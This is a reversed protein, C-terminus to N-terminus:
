PKLNEQLYQRGKKDMKVPYKKKLQEVWNKELYTQYDSIVEPRAEEFSMTGPPLIDKFWALYYMGNNEAPHVGAAWNVKNFVAKDERKYFGSEYKVKNTIVAELIKREDGQLLLPQLISIFAKNDSSYLSAKVREGAQYEAAHESYYKHQGISDESAKNWVEKEMIEFLLIGEYYEKLLFSYEPNERKIKEEQLTIISVDVFNNYLQDIYKQPLMTNTHQNKVVYDIFQSVRVPKGNLSFLIDKAATPWAPAKWSGKSLTSDAFSFVKTKMPNVESFGFEERLRAQWAMKTLQTREDRNVRSKLTPALAAYDALPIIRELKIIHWGYQTEFPDSVEGPKTLAFAIKEFEPVSAMQGVSFPKLRGGNDKSGPDESFQKCLDDWNVNAQLQDYIDFILNKAKVNDKDEGTRIMIHSVEVEGRSPRRDEVFLLHYGFRTRVPLSVQGVPTAYAANEFPFVMQLATFYGLDGQNIKASPDESYQVAATKFDKGKVIENRIATIQQYVKLTDEPSADPKLNILLHSVKVEEKLRNYTLTVLSDTLAADPMYPKRLEEKYQSYERHFAKTTDMGRSKAEEVKLKFNVFLDLYADIKEPTFDTTKNPHNKKYLYIFEDVSTAKKNIIFLAKPKQIKENKSQAFSATSCVALLLMFLVCRM